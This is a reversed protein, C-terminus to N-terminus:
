LSFLGSQVEEHCASLPSGHPNERLRARTGHPKPKNAKTSEDAGWIGAVNNCKARINAAYHLTEKSDHAQSVLALRFREPRFRGASVSRGFGVPRFRRRGFGVGASVSRGFGVPRLRGASTLRGFGVPRFRRQGFGDQTVGILM